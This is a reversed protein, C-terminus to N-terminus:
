LVVEGVRSAKKVQLSMLDELSWDTAYIANRRTDDRIYERFAETVKPNNYDFSYGRPLLLPNPNSTDIDEEPLMFSIASEHSLNPALLIRWDPNILEEKGWLHNDPVVVVIDGSKLCQSDRQICQSNTKDKVRFLLQM